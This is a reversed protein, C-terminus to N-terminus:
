EQRALRLQYTVYYKYVNRVYTMVEVGIQQAAVIEVNGLWEDPDFGQAAAQARLAAIKGPGANYSAVAFLTRNLETFRVDPFYQQVLADMYKAGAHINADVQTINGVQMSAGTAPMLQMVGIPGGASRVNQDLTTEQYGLATVILPDLNYQRGYKEFLPWLTEFRQWALKETPDKLVRIKKQYIDFRYRDLGGNAFLEAVFDNLTAALDKNDKGVAWGVTGDAQLLMDDHVVINPLAKKWLQAKWDIVIMADILGANIMQLLDEDELAHPTQILSVPARGSAEFRQNLSVLSKYFHAPYAAHIRMGSLDDINKVTPASAATVLMEQLVTASTKRIFDNQDEIGRTQRLDGIALDALGSELASLAKGKLVPVLRVVFPRNNLQRAYRHSLWNSLDRAIEVSVGYPVGRDNYYLSRDYEVAMRLLRRELMEPFSGHWIETRAQTAM